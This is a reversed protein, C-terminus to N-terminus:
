MSLPSSQHFRDDLVDLGAAHVRMLVEDGAIKPKDVHQFKLVDGLGYEYKVIAKM